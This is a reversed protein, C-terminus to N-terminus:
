GGVLTWRTCSAKLRGVGVKSRMSCGISMM